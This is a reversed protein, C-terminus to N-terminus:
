PMTLLITEGPWVIYVATLTLKLLSTILIHDIQPLFSLLPFLVRVGKKRKLCTICATSRAETRVM